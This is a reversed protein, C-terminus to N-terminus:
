AGWAHRRHRRGASGSLATCCGTRCPRSISSRTAGATRHASLSLNRRDPQNPSIAAPGSNLLPPLQRCREVGAAASRRLHLRLQVAAQRRFPTLPSFPQISAPQCGPPRRRRIPITIYREIGEAVPGSKPTVIEVMPPTPDPIAEINTAPVRIIGGRLDAIFVVVM